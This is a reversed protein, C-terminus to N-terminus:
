DCKNPLTSFSVFSDAMESFQTTKKKKKVKKPVNTSIRNLPKNGAM